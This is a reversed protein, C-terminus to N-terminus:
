LCKPVGDSRRLRRLGSLDCPLRTDYYESGCFFQWYTNEAWRQPVSESFAHTLYLLGVMLRIPFHPRGAPEYM